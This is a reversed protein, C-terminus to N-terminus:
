CSRSSSLGAMSTSTSSSCTPGRLFTLRCALLRLRRISRATRETSCNTTQCTEEEEILRLCSAFRLAQAYQGVCVARSATTSSASSLCGPYYKEVADNGIDAPEDVLVRKPRIAALAATLTTNSIFPTPPELQSSPPRSWRSSIVIFTDADANLPELVNHLLTRHVSPYIFSRAEGALCAAVHSTGQM